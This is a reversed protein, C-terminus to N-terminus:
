GHLTDAFFEVTRGWALAAANADHARSNPNAFAHGAGPYRFVVATDSKVEDLQDLESEPISRDATGYHGQWPVSLEAASELGSPMGSWRSVGLGGGYFTVGADAVGSASGWLSVSGGMCFGLIGVSSVPEQALLDRAAAIDHSISEGTLAKMQPRAEDFDRIVPDGGRWYLHPIAVLYGRGALARGVDRLYSDVGWAEQVLIIGAGNNGAQEDNVLSIPVGQHSIERDFGNLASM